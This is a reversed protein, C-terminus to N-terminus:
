FRYEHRRHTSYQSKECRYRVQYEGHEDYEQKVADGANNGVHYCILLRKLQFLEEVTKKLRHYEIHDDHGHIENSIDKQVDASGNLAASHNDIRNKVEVAGVNQAVAYLM